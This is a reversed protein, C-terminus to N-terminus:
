DKPLHLVVSDIDNSGIESTNKFYIKGKYIGLDFLPRVSKLDRSIVAPALFYVKRQEVQGKFLELSRSDPLPNMRNIRSIFMHIDEEKVDYGSDKLRKIVAEPDPGIHVSYGPEEGEIPGEVIAVRLEELRDNKGYRKHWQGFIKRAPEENLFAIGLIPPKGPEFAFVTAKWKAANWLDVDIPSSLYMAPNISKRALSRRKGLKPKETKSQGTLRGYLDEYGADIALCYYSSGQLPTPIFRKDEDKLVVPIFRTNLTGANYIHQYVLNGEWRVGLGTGEKEQGMVRSLYRETCVLVVYKSDRINKDMWRPWGDPPSVEYQDINCDIGDERLRNSLRLVQEMHEVSDQSYSIFVEPYGTKAPENM